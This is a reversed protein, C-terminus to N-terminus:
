GCVLTASSSAGSEMESGALLWDFLHVPTKKDAPTSVTVNGSISTVVAVAEAAARDQALAALPLLAFFLARAGPNQPFLRM